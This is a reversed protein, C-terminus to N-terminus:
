TEHPSRGETLTSALGYCANCGSAGCKTVSCSMAWSCGGCWTRGYGVPGHGVIRWDRLRRPGHEVICGERIRRPRPRRHAFGPDSFAEGARAAREM